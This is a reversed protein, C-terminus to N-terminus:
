WANKIIKPLRNAKIIVLDFRINCGFFKSNNSIFLKASNKIRQIQSPRCPNDIEFNGSRAKVEVFVLQNFRKFILDIEGCYNRMRWSVLKYLMLKYIIITFFEAIYGFDFRM